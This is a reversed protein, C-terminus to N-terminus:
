SLLKQVLEGSEIQPVNAGKKDKSIRRKTNKLLKVTKPTLLKLYNEAKIKFTIRNQVKYLLYFTQRVENLLNESTNSAQVQTLGKAKIKKPNTKIVINQIRVSIVIMRM